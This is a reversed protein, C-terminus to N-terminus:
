VKKDKRIAIFGFAIIMIGFFSLPGAYGITLMSGGLWLLVPSANKSRYMLYGAAIVLFPPLTQLWFIWKFGAYGAWAALNTGIVLLPVFRPFLFHSITRGLIAELWVSLGLYLFIYGFWLSLKKATKRGPTALDPAM